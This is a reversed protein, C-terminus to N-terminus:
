THPPSPRCILHEVYTSLAPVATVSTNNRVGCAALFKASNFRHSDSAELCGALMRALEDCAKHWTGPCANGKVPVRDRTLRVQSAILDFDKLKM